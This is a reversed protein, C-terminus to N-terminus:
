PTVPLLNVLRDYLKFLRTDQLKEALAARLTHHYWAIDEKPANFSPWIADGHLALEEQLSALNSLKDALLILLQDRSAAACAEITHMKRARWTRAKEERTTEPGKEPETAFHVLSLVYPGFDLELQEATFHTDELIDHLIGAIIVDESVGPEALLLRAVDLIHVIYPTGGVKRRQGRHQEFAVGLARQIRDM